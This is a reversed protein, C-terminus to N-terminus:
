ENVEFGLQEVANKVDIASATGKVTLTAATIDAIVEQVGEIALVAKEVNAKCHNCKMGSVNYVVTAVTNDVLEFGLQEVIKKVENATIHGSITLTAAAIDAVVSEVNGKAMIAKELNAKCHNCKMGRVKYVETSNELHSHSHPAFFKMALAFLLLTLFIASCCWKWIPMEDAHCSVTHMIYGFWERPLLYDIVLGFAFAGAVITAVYIIMNKIGMVKKIVLLSAFNVAPGAMLFVLAAGPNLGKLMLAAAIPISGTACVYMPTAVLMVALMQLLPYDTFQLFFEDPIAITIIGALILGVCLHGGIDQLMDFFGYKLASFVKNSSKTSDHEHEEVKVNKDGDNENDYKSVFFGAFLSTVFAAIPRVIAFPLGFVSYTALISDVGTQPTSTLFATTASKSAGERRLSMATPIVGCSCLPLPIGFLSAYVVSKFSNDSLYNHYFKKPIAVHLIGAFLFGLILFPSMENFIGVLSGFFESM